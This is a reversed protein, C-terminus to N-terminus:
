MVTSLSLFCFFYLFIIIAGYILNGVWVYEHSLVHIWLYIWVGDMM